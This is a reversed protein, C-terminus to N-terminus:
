APRKARQRLGSAADLELVLPPERLDLAQLIEHQCPTAETRQLIRGASGAFESLHMREFEPRVNRWSDGTAFEIVRVLMLALFCLTVHARIREEKRHYVPRLEIVQKLDRWSAEVELLSKYLRAMDAADPADDSSSLLFKGDLREEAAVKKKDVVLHGSRRILYRKLM